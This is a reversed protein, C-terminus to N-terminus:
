FSRGTACTTPLLAIEDFFLALSKVWGADRWIVGPCYFAAHRPDSVRPIMAPTAHASM